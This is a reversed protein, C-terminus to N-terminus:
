HRSVSGLSRGYRQANIVDELEGRYGAREKSDLQQLPDPIPAGREAEIVVEFAAHFDVTSDEGELPPVGPDAYPNTTAAAITGTPEVRETNATTGPASEAADMPQEEPTQERVSGSRSGFMALREKLRFWTLAVQKTETRTCAFAADYGSTSPGDNPFNPL